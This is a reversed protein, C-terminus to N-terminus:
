RKDTALMHDCRFIARFPRDKALDSDGWFVKYVNEVPNLLGGMGQSFGLSALSTNTYRWTEHEAEMHLGVKLRDSPHNNIQSITNPHVRFQWTAIKKQQERTFRSLLEAQDGQYLFLFNGSCDIEEGGVCHRTQGLAIRDYQGPLLRLGIFDEMGTNPWNDGFKRLVDLGYAFVLDVGPNYDDPTWHSSSAYYWRSDTSKKLSPFTAFLKDVLELRFSLFENRKDVFSQDPLGERASYKFHDHKKYAYHWADVFYGRLIWNLMVMTKEPDFMVLTLPVSKEVRIVEGPFLYDENGLASVLAEFAAHDGDRYLKALEGGLIILDPAVEEWLRRFDTPSDVSKALEGLWQAAGDLKGRYRGFNRNGELKRILDRIQIGSSRSNDIEEPVQKM